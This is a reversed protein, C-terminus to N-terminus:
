SIINFYYYHLCTQQVVKLWVMIMHFVEKIRM